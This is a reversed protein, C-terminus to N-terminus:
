ELMAGLCVFLLSKLHQYIKPRFIQKELRLSPNPQTTHLATAECGKGRRGKHLLDLIRQARFIEMSWVRESAQVELTTVCVCVCRYVCEGM